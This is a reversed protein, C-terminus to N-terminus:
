DLTAYLSHPRLHHAVRSDFGPFYGTERVGEDSNAKLSWYLTADYIEVNLYCLAIFISLMM